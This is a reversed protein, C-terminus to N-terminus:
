SIWTDVWFPLSRGILRGGSNLTVKHATAIRSRLLHGSSSKIREAQLCDLVAAIVAVEYGAGIESLIGCGEEETTRIEQALQM